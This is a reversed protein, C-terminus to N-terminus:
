RLKMKGDLVFDSKETVLIYSMGVKKLKKVFFDM